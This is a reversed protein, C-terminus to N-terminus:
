GLTRGEAEEIQALAVALADKARDLSTRDSEWKAFARQARAAENALRHSTDALSVRAESLDADLLSARERLSALEQEAAEAARTATGLLSDLEQIRAQHMSDSERKAQTIASLQERTDSLEGGLQGIRAEFESKADAAAERAQDLERALRAELAAIRADRDNELQTVREGNERVLDSIREAATTELDRVRQESERALAAVRDEHAEEMAAVTRAHTAQVERDRLELREQADRRLQDLESERRADSADLQHTFEARARSLEDRQERQIRELDNAYHDRLEAERAAVARVREGTLREEAEHVALEVAREMTAHTDSRLSEIEQAHREQVNRFEIEIRALEDAQRARTEELEREKADVDARAREMRARFDESAKKAQEKDRANTEARQRTEELAHELAVIKDDLDATARELAINKERSDIIERDKKAAAEKLGLIEKDKKNLNERLDLFERSSVGGGKGTAAVRGRLEEVERQLREADREHQEAAHQLREADREHQEAAHQVEERLRASEGEKVALEQELDHIQMRAREVDSRLRSVEAGMDGMSGMPSMAGGRMSGPVIDQLAGNSSAMTETSQLKGFAADAFADIDADVRRPPFSSRIPQRPPAPPPLGFDPLQEVRTMGETEEEEEEDEVVDAVEEIDAAEIGDDEIVVIGAESPPANAGLAVFPQIHLLLEGFAIPKHVYDEARTRLKKHQEFTEESSESSMIILPVDKLNADKKLKNCVSFGNMRPLEISLLILDPKEAAAQQLGVNGDDVVLIACGLKELESRLEGAFAADSEFVLVKTSM